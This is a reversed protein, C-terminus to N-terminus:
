FGFLMGQAVEIVANLGLADLLEFIKNRAASVYLNGAKTTTQKTAAYASSTTTAAYTTTSTYAVTEHTSTTTTTTTTPTKTTTTTTTTPNTTTTTTTTPTDTTTTTTTTACKNDKCTSKEDCTGCSPITGGCGDSESGCTFGATCATKPWGSGPLTKPDLSITVVRKWPVECDDRCLTFSITITVPACTPFALTPIVLEILSHRKNDRKTPPPPEVVTVQGQSTAGNYTGNFEYIKANLDFSLTPQGSANSYTFQPTPFSFASCLAELEYKFNPPPSYIEYCATDVCDRYAKTKAVPDSCINQLDATNTIKPAQYFSTM